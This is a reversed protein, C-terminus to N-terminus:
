RLIRGTKLDTHYFGIAPSPILIRCYYSVSKNHISTYQGEFPNLNDQDSDAISFYSCFPRKEYQNSSSFVRCWWYPQLNLQFKRILQVPKAQKGASLIIDFNPKMLQPSTWVSLRAKESSSNIFVCEVETTASTNSNITYNDKKDMPHGIIMHELRDKSLDEPNNPLIANKKPQPPSSQTTSKATETGRTAPAKKQTSDSSVNSNTTVTLSETDGQIWTASADPSTDRQTSSYALMSFTSLGVTLIPILFILIFVARNLKTDMMRMSSDMRHKFPQSAPTSQQDDVRSVVPSQTM